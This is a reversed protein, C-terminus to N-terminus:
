FIHLKYVSFLAEHNASKCSILGYVQWLSMPIQEFGLGPLTCNIRQAFYENFFKESCKNYGNTNDLYKKCGGNLKELSIVQKVTMSAEYALISPRLTIELNLTTISKQFQSM